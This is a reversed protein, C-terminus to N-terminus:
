NNTVLLHFSLADATVIVSNGQADTPMTCTVTNTNSNVEKAGISCPSVSDTFPPMPEGNQGHGNRTFGGQVSYVGGFGNADTGAAYDVQSANLVVTVSNIRFGDDSTNYVISNAQAGTVNSSGYGATTTQPLSNSNTFAAGGAAVVAAALVGLALVAKGNRKM